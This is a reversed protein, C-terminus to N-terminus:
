AARLTLNDGAARPIRIVFRTFRGEESTCTIQGGLRNTVLNYVLHLGLGVHGGFRDTTFFPEFIRDLSAAAIGVGDDEVVLELAEARGSITVEIRGRRGEPFAHELSNSLIQGVVQHLAGFYSQAATEGSAEVKIEIGEQALKPRLESVVAHVCASVDLIRSSESSDVTAISKFAEVLYKARQCGGEIVSTSSRVFQVFASLDSRKLGADMVKAFEDCRHSLASSATVTVGIPTNMEHAIGRVLGGLAAIKESEVLREQASKLAELAESLAHTRERVKTEMNRYLMANENSIAFQSSLIKLMEIRALTFAGSALRNELYWVGVMSGQHAVPACFVSRVRNRRIYPDHRYASSEAADDLLVWEGTRAVFNFVTPALLEFRDHIAADDIRVEDVTGSAALHWGSDQRLCLAGFQAGTNEIVLTVIRKLLQEVDIERSIASSAKIVTDLDLTVDRPANDPVARPVGSGGPSLQQDALGLLEEPYTLRLQRLKSEAGWTQYFYWAQRLYHAAAGPDHHAHYFAGARECTLAKYRLFNNDKAAQVARAFSQMADGQRGRLAALEAEMLHLHHSFNEPYRRSWRAMRRKERLLRGWIAPKAARGCARLRGAETLFAYLCHEVLYPSGALSLMVKDAAELHRRAKDYDDHHCHIQMKASHYQAIGSVFHLKQMRGLLEDETLQETSLSHPTPTRGCFNLARAYHIQASMLAPDVGTEKILALNQQQQEIFSPLDMRPNWLNVFGAAFATYLLDGSELGVDLARQFWSALKSWSDSWSLSFIAYLNLTMSKWALARQRDSLRVAMEGFRHAGDLDNLGALLAAYGAYAAATEESHGHHVALRTKILVAVAFLNSNGSMYAPPVFNILLRMALRIDPDTIDGQREIEEISKRRLAWKVGALERLIRLTTPKPPVHIGLERLGAVGAAISADIKWLFNYNSAQMQYIAARQRPTQARALLLSAVRDAEQVEGCLYSCLCLQEHIEFTLEYSSEWCGDALLACANAAYDRASAFAHSALAHRSAMLNYRSARLREDRDALLSRSQNLHEVIETLRAHVESEALHQSMLRFIKHHTAEREEESLLSYAAARVRDHQFQYTIPLDRAATADLRALQDVIRYSQSIPLVVGSDLIEDISGALTEFPSDAVLLLTRLDFKSGICAAIKLLQLADTGLRSLREVMLQAINPAVEVQEIAALDWQWRQDRHDYVILRRQVLSKMLESTFFQNGETKHLLLRALPECHEPTTHLMDAVFQSLSPRDLPGLAIEDIVQGRLRLDRLFLSLPQGESIDSSRYSGIVFLGQLSRNSLLTDLLRLSSQDAWQLDDLFLVIAHERAASQLFATLTLNFRKQEETPNLPSLDPHEGLCATLDPFFSTILAVNPGLRELIRSKWADLSAPSLKLLQQAYDAFARQLGLFPIAGQFQEYKGSILIGHHEFIPRHLEHVLSSKGVGAAGTILALRAGPTDLSGVLRTLTELDRERGYLKQPISFRGYSDHLGVAFPEVSGKSEYEVRCRELDLRLGEASQYRDEKSKCLLKGIIAALARATSPSANPAVSQDGREWGIAPPEKALHCHVLELPDTSPFPPRGTLLLYLIAGLSYYDSRYDVTRNMRGTQEPSIYALTEYLSEHEVVEARESEIVSALDFNTIRLRNDLSSWLINDPKLDQHIVNQRHIGAVGEVLELALAFFLRLDVPRGGTAATLPKGAFDEFILLITEDIEELAVPKLLHPTVPALRAVLEHEKTLTARERLTPRGSKLRKVIRAASTTKDFSRCLVYSSSERLIAVDQFRRTLGLSM